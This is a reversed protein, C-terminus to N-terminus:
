LPIPISIAGDETLITLCKMVKEGKKQKLFEYGMRIGEESYKPYAILTDGDESPIFYIGGESPEAGNEIAEILIKQNECENELKEERPWVVFLYIIFTTFFLVVYSIAWGTKTTKMITTNLSTLLHM